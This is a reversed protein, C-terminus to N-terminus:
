EYLLVSQPANIDKYSGDLPQTLIMKSFVVFTSSFDCFDDEPCWAHGYWIDHSEM